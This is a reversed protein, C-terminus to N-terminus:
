SEFSGLPHPSPRRLTDIGLTKVEPHLLVGFRQQVTTQVFVILASVDGASAHPDAQIFNAHKESVAVSGVRHGKLGCADILRGASDGEPNTFVSGCNAGGPQHERRWKVISRLAGEGDVHDGPELRFRASVVIESSALNSHRYRLDLKDTPREEMAIRGETTLVTADLLNAAINSGHGGANMRVAGGVSGPVGVAWELGTLGLSVTKRALVPLKVAGGAVVVTPDAPDQEIRSFSDGLVIVCAGVGADAVLLNSGQGIAVVPLGVEWAARAVALLEPAGTPEALLEAPGGIGFTTFPALDVEPRVRLQQDALLALVRAARDTTV